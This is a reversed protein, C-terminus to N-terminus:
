LEADTIASALRNSIDACIDSFAHDNRLDPTRPYVFPIEIDAVVRGPRPSMVVVREALFVAERISHTVFIGTWRQNKWLTLLDENLQARTFEDLAAFPEDLLLLSPQTTLARAISARMRMGGSLERPFTNKFADLGVWALVEQARKEIEANGLGKLRLRLPIAVNEAITAWPMLTPDQFVFGIDSAIVDDNLNHGVSGSTGSLLGAIIRLLTSKGCGSPGVLAVFSGESVQLTVPELAHTGSEFTKSTGKIDLITKIPESAM